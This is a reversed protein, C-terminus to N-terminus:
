LKRRCTPCKNQLENNKLIEFCDNCLTHGCSTLHFTEKTTLELCVPCSYTENLRNALDWLEKTIHTPIEKPMTKKKNETPAVIAIITTAEELRETHLEYVKAWAFAKQKTLANKMSNYKAETYTTM